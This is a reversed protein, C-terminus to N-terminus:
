LAQMFYNTRKEREITTSPGHGTHVITEGPLVQLQKLSQQLERANGGPFDTRGVSGAFLTDGSLLVGEDEFHFCVSGPSHGPTSLVRYTLGGDTWRQDRELLREIRDPKEPVGYFPPMANDPGFAWELDLSHIGIPAPEAKYLEAVASVHDMHGHTLMYAAVRLGNQELTARIAAADKGPDVVIAGSPDSWVILCNVQFEGVVIYEVNM